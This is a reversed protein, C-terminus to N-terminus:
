VKRRTPWYGLYRLYAEPPMSSTPHFNSGLMAPDFRRAVAEAHVYVKGDETKCSWLWVNYGDCAASRIFRVDDPSCATPSGTGDLNIYEAISANTIRSAEPTDPVLRPFQETVTM